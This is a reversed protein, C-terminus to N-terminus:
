VKLAVILINWVDSFELLTCFGRTFDSFKFCTISRFFFPIGPEGTLEENLSISLCAIISAVMWVLKMKHSMSLKPPILYHIDEEDGQQNILEGNMNILKIARTGGGVPCLFVGCDAAARVIPDIVYSYCCVNTKTETDTDVVVRILPSNIGVGRVIDNRLAIRYLQYWQRHSCSIVDNMEPKQRDPIRAYESPYAIIKPM